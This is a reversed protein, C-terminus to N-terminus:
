VTGDLIFMDKRKDKMVHDCLYDVLFKLNVPSGDSLPLTLAHRRQNSFLLELGGSDSLTLRTTNRFVLVYGSRFEVDVPLNNSNSGGVDM